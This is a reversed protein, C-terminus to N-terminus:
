RKCRPCAKWKLIVQKCGGLNCKDFSVGTDLVIRHWATNQVIALFLIFLYGGGM